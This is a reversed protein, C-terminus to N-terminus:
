PQRMLSLPDLDPVEQQKGGPTGLYIMAVIADKDDFGLRQKVVPHTAMWGTRWMAGIGMAHAAVMINQAAAGTSLIQELVPIRHDPLTEAVVVLIAPARLVKNRVRSLEDTSAQPNDMHWAEELVQGLKNRQAGSFLMFRWPRLRGHDPARIAAKLLTRIQDDTPGPEELCPVSVRTELATIADM